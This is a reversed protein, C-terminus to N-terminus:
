ILQRRAMIATCLFAPEVFRRELGFPSFLIDWALFLLVFMIAPMLIPRRRLTQIVAHGCLYLTWFWFLAGLIGAEVWAGLLMSHTPILDSQFPNGEYKYGAEELAQVKLMVYYTDRPWSGHGIIPSDLIAQTSALSETRGGLLLGFTGSSQRFYKEQAEVGLIGNSALLGYLVILIWAAAIAGLALLAVDRAHLQRANKSRSLFGSLASLATLGFLNRAQLAIDTAAAFLRLSTATFRRNTRDFHTSILLLLFSFAQGYGFKWAPGFVDRGFTEGGIEAGPFLALKIAAGIFIATLLITLRRSNEAVLLYLSAFNVILFVIKSWGRLLDETRTDRIADTFIAGCLWLFAFAFFHRTEARRLLLRGNSAMLFPLSAALIIDALLLRGGVEIEFIQGIAAAVLIAEPILLNRSTQILQKESPRTIQRALMVM